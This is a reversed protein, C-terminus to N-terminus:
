LRKLLRAFVDRLFQDLRDLPRPHPKLSGDSCRHTSAEGADVHRQALLKIKVRVEPRNPIQRMNRRPIRIHIQNDHPLIRLTKIGPQDAAKTPPNPNTGLAFRPSSHAMKSATCPDAGSMAPFFRAFGVASNREASSM